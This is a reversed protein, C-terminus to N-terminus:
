YISILKLHKSYHWILQYHLLNIDGIIKREISVREFLIGVKPWISKPVMIICGLIEANRYVMKNVSVSYLDSNFSMFHITVIKSFMSQMIMATWQKTYQQDSCLMTLQLFFGDITWLSKGSIVVHTHCPESCSSIISLHGSIYFFM